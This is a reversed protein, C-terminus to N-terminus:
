CLKIEKIPMKYREEWDDRQMAPHSVCSPYDRNDIGFYKKYGCEPCAAVYVYLQKDYCEPTYIYEGSWDASSQLEYVCGCGECHACIGDKNMFGPHIIKM